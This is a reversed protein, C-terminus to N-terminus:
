RGSGVTLLFSRLASPLHTGPRGSVALAFAIDTATSNAWGSPLDGGTRAGGGVGSAVAVYLVALVAVGCMAAAVPLAAKAPDKLDGIAFERKLEPGAVFFRDHALRGGGPLVAPATVSTRVGKHTPDNPYRASWAKRCAVTLRSLSQGEPQSGSSLSFPIPRELM